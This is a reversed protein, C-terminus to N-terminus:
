SLLFKAGGSIRLYSASHGTSLTWVCAIAVNESESNNPQTSSRIINDVTCYTRSSQLWLSSQSTAQFGVTQESTMSNIKILLITRTCKTLYNRSLHHGGSCKQVDLPKLFIPILTEVWILQFRNFLSTNSSISIKSISTLRWIWSKAVRALHSSSTMQSYASCKLELEERAQIRRHDIFIFTLTFFSLTTFSHRITGCSIGAIFSSAM